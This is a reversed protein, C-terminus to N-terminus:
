SSVWPFIVIRSGFVGSLNSEDSGSSIDKHIFMILEKKVKVKRSQKAANSM